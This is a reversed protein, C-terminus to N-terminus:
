RSSVSSLGHRLARNTATLTLWLPPNGLWEDARLFVKNLSVQGFAAQQWLDRSEAPQVSLGNEESRVLLLGDIQDNVQVPLLLSFGQWQLNPVGVLRGNFRWGLGAPKAEVCPCEIASAGGMEGSLLDPLLLERLAVNDTHVLAEVVLRQSRFMLMDPYVLSRLWERAASDHFVDSIEGGLGGWRAPVGIRLFGSRAIRALRETSGLSTSTQVAPAETNLLM